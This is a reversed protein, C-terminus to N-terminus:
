FTYDFTVIDDEYLEYIVDILRSDNEYYSPYSDRQGTRNICVDPLLVIGQEALWTNLEFLREFRFIKDVIVNGVEDCVFYTQPRFAPDLTSIRSRRPYLYDLIFDGFTTFCQVTELFTPDITVLKGGNQRAFEYASVARDWPNRVIAFSKRTAFWNRDSRSYFLAKRHAIPMQYLQMAVSTGANKPVHIFLVNERRIHTPIPLNLLTESIRQVSPPSLNTFLDLSIERFRRSSPIAMM